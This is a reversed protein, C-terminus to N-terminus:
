ENINCITTLNLVTGFVAVNSVTHTIIAGSPLNPDADFFVNMHFNAITPIYAVAAQIQASSFAYTSNPAANFSMIGLLNGTPGDHIRLRIARTFDNKNHVKVVSPFRSELTTTHINVVGATMPIYSFGDVYSCASMNEFFQSIANFYVHQVGTLLQNNQLYLTVSTDSPDFSVGGISQYLDTISLQPSSYPPSEVTATGYDTGTADGIIRVTTTTTIASNFNPFRIFSFNSQFGPTANPIVTYNGPIVASSREPTGASLAVAREAKIRAMSEDYAARASDQEAESSRPGKSVMYAEPNRLMHVLSEDATAPGTSFVFLAALVLGNLTHTYTKM